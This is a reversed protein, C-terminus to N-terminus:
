FLRQVDRLTIFIVLAILLIFFFITIPQEIKESIPKGRIKEIGLFLLKGGDLGPIPLINLLALNISIVAIFQLFYVIGLQSVQAVLGVVGVPGMISVGIPVGRILNTLISIWGKITLYTLNFTAEIGKWIAFYWPYSIASTRVLAIGIAGEGDPPSVRPVLKTEFIEKGREITLIVEQGKYQETFEQLEKVKTIEFKENGIKITGIIDGARFGAEEAPSDKAVAIIQVKPDILVGEEEDSIAQSTGLWLTFSLLIVSIIWFVVVGAIVILARQWIPRSSFSRPDKIDKEEGYIKVFGGFPLLNFSYTTEGIKKAFLRPPFFIGFEEVKVGFRKATIFHGFEHLVILSILSSFAIIITFFM